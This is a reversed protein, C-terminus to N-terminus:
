GAGGAAAAPPEQPGGLDDLAYALLQALPRRPWEPPAPGAGFSFNTVVWADPDPADPDVERRRGVLVTFFSADEEAQLKAGRDEIWGALWSRVTVEDLEEKTWLRSRPGEPESTVTYGAVSARTTWGPPKWEGALPGAGAAPELRLVLERSVAQAARWLRGFPEAVAPETGPVEIEGGKGRRGWRGLSAGLRGALEKDEIRVTVVDGSVQLRTRRAGARDPPEDATDAPDLGALARELADRTVGLAILARKALTDEDGFLGLLLHQSGLPAAAAQQRARDVAFMAGRTMNPPDPSMIRVGSEVVPAVLRRVVEDRLRRLDAGQNVLAMAAVGQGERILGLLIHGAEISRQKLRMSERLSLELVKKARPTFPIHEKGVEVGTPPVVREIEARVGDASLGLAAVARAAVGEPGDLLALLLHETGIWTHGYARALEQAAVVTRRAEGSFREFM